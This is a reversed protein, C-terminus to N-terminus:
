PQATGRFCYKNAIFQFSSGVNSGSPLSIKGCSQVAQKKTDDDYVYIRQQFESVPICQRVLFEGPPPAPFSSETNEFMLDFAEVTYNNLLESLSVENFSSWMGCFLIGNRLMVKFCTRNLYLLRAAGLVPDIDKHRLARIQNYAEKGSPLSRYVEWVGQPSSRIVKYLDILESNIDSIIARKPKVYFFVAGGGVFPEVYRGHIEDRPPIHESLYSLMRRKGGPYRLFNPLVKTDM